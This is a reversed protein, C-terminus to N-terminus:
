WIARNRTAGSINWFGKFIFSIFIIQFNVAFRLKGVPAKMYPIGQFSIYETGLNTEKKIGEIIGYETYVQVLKSSM